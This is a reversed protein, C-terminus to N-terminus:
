CDLFLLLAQVLQMLLNSSSYFFQFNFFSTSIISIREQLQQHSGHNYKRYIDSFHSYFTTKSTPWPGWPETFKMVKSFVVHVRMESYAYIKNNQQFNCTDGDRLLM